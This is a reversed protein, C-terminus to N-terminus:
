ASKSPREDKPDTALEAILDDTLPVTRGATLDALGEDLATSGLGARDRLALMVQALLNRDEAHQRVLDLAHKVDALSLVEIRAPSAGRVPVLVGAEIWARVTPQSLSLVSAAESVKVGRERSAVRRHVDDLSRRREPDDEHAALEQLTILDDVVDIISM